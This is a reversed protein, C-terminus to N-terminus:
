IVSWPRFLLGQNPLHGIGTYASFVSKASKFTAEGLKGPM